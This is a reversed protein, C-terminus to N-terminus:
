ARFFFEPVDSGDWLVSETSGDPMIQTLGGFREIFRRCTRCAYHLGKNCLITGGETPLRVAMGEDPVAGPHVGNLYAAWLAEPKADTTFLPTDGSEAVRQAILQEFRKYDHDHSVAAPIADSSAKSM